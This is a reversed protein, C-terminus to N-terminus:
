CNRAFCLAVEICSCSGGRYRRLMSRRQLLILQIHRRWACYVVIRLHCRICCQLAACILVQLAGDAPGLGAADAMISPLYALTSFYDLGVLGLVLWWTDHGFATM